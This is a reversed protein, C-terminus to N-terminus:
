FQQAQWETSIWFNFTHYKEKNQETFYSINRLKNTMDLLFCFCFKIWMTVYFRSISLAEGEGRGYICITWCIKSKVLLSTPMFNNCQRYSGFSAGTKDNSILFKDTHIILSKRYLITVISQGQYIIYSYSSFAPRVM